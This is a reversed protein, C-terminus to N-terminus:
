GLLGWCVCSGAARRCRHESVISLVDRLAVLSVPVIVGGIVGAVPRTVAVPTYLRERAAVVHDGVMDTMPSPAHATLAVAM